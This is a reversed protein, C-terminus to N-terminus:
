RCARWGAAGRAAQDLHFHDRHAANYEPSLVTAFLGCAGDRAERLFRSAADDGPWDAAVSIRRGDALRFGAVDLANASAHESWAGDSRGNVRRCSYSGLHEIAAVRSGLHRRAAPQLVHWEWLAVGAIVPCSPAVDAPRMALTLAGTPAPRVPNRPGCRGDYRGPAPVFAVGAQRLQARCAEGDGVLAAIGRGTLPGPDAALDLAGAGGRVAAGWLALAGFGLALLVLFASLFRM